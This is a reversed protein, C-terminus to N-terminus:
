MLGPNFLQVSKSCSTEAYCCVGSMVCSQHFCHFMATKGNELQFIAVECLAMDASDYKEITLYRGVAYPDCYVSFSPLHTMSFREGCQPNSGGGNSSSNGVRVVLDRMREQCCEKRGVIFVEGIYYVIGFDVVWWVYNHAPRCITCHPHGDRDYLGDNSKWNRLIRSGSIVKGRAINGLSKPFIKRLM